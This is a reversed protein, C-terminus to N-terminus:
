AKMGQNEENTRDRLTVSVTNAAKQVQKKTRKVAKGVVQSNTEYSQSPLKSLSPACFSGFVNPRGQRVTNTM